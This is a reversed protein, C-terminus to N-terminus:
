QPPRYENLLGSVGFSHEDDDPGQGRRHGEYPFLDDFEASTLPDAMFGKQRLREQRSATIDKNSVVRGRKGAAHGRGRWPGKDTARRQGQNGRAGPDQGEGEGEGEEEGEGEREGEGQGEGKGQDEDGADDDGDGDGDDDDDDDDDSPGRGKDALHRRMHRLQKKNAHDGFAFWRPLPRFTIPKSIAAQQAVAEWLERSGPRQAPRMTLAWLMLENLRASYREPAPKPDRPWLFNETNYKKARDRFGTYYVERRRLRATSFKLFKPDHEKTLPHTEPPRGIHVLHHLTSGITWVDSKITCQDFDTM